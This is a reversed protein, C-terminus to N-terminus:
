RANAFKFPPSQCYLKAREILEPTHKFMGIAQNCIGCLLGRVVNTDHCHDIALRRGEQEETKECIFCKGGQKALMEEYQALSIGYKRRIIVDWKELGSWNHPKFKTCDRSHAGNKIERSDQSHLEGCHNCRVKWRRPTCPEEVVGHPTKTGVLNIRPKRTRATM